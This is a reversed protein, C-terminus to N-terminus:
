FWRCSSGTKIVSTADCRRIKHFKNNRIKNPIYQDTDIIATTDTDADKDYFLGFYSVDNIYPNISRDDIYIDDLIV